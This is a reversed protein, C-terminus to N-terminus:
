FTLTIFDTFQSDGFVDNLCFGYVYDADEEVDDYGFSLAADAGVTIPEGEFPESQMEDNEDWYLLKYQPVVVDGASLKAYGRAPVGLESYGKSFGLVEGYPNEQTFAVLLDGEVGNLTVPIASRIYTENVIQDYMCVMQGELTPWTGDFLGYVTGGQWDVFVDQVYGLEVYCEFDPDSVDMMLNAEAMALYQLEEQTLTVTYACDGSANAFPNEVAVSGSQTQVDVTASEDNLGNWLGSFLSGGAAPEEPTQEFASGDDEAFLSNLFGDLSFEDNEECYSESADYYSDADSAYQSFWNIQADQLSQQSVGTSSFTYSGGTMQELLEGVFGSYSPSLGRADVVHVRLM